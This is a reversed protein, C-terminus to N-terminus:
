EMTFLSSTSYVRRNTLEPSSRVDLYLFLLGYTFGSFVGLFTVIPETFLIKLAESAIFYMEKAADLNNKRQRIKEALPDDAAAKLIVVTPQTEPLLALVVAFAGSIIINIYYWWHYGLNEAVVEGIPSGVSTGVNASVVFLAMAQGADKYAFMDSVSAAVNTCATSGAAGSLFSFVIVQEINRPLACGINFIAYLLCSGAYVWRRGAIDRHFILIQNMISCYSLPGLYLPGIGTGVIFLSQGLATVQTSSNFQNQILVEISLYATSTM